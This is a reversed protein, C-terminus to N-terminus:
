ILLVFHCCEGDGIHGRASDVCGAKGRRAGAAIGRFVVVVVDEKPDLVAVGGGVRDGDRRLFRAGRNGTEALDGLRVDDDLNGGGAAFLEDARKGGDGIVLGVAGDGDGVVVDCAHGDGRHPQRPLGDLGHGVFLAAFHCQIEAGLFVDQPRTKLQEAFDLLGQAHTQDGEGATEHGTFESDSFDGGHERHRDPILVAGVGLFCALKNDLITDSLIDAGEGFKERRRKRSVLFFPGLPLTVAVGGGAVPLRFFRSNIGQRRYM